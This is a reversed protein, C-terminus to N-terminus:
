RAFENIITDLIKKLPDYSSLHRSTEEFFSIQTEVDHKEITKEGIRRLFDSVMEALYRNRDTPVGFAKLLVEEASWGYTESPISEVKIENEENRSMCMVNSRNLPLNSVLFHCHTAILFHCGYDVLAKELNPILDLQWNPHQSIEPEDLLLLLRQSNAALVVSAVISLLNFEGSSLSDADVEEWNNYFICKVNKLLGYQRLVYLSELPLSRIADLSDKDFSIDLSHQEGDNITNYFEQHEVAIKPEIRFGKITNSLNERSQFRFTVKSDYGIFRLIVSLMELRNASSITPLASLQQLLVNAKSTFMNSSAKPGVYRYYEPNYRGTSYTPKSNIPFKDFMGMTSAVILPFEMRKRSVTIGDRQYYIRKDPKDIQYTHGDITYKVSYVTVHYKKSRKSHGRADIFFEILERFLSSKCVGNKGLLLTFYGGKSSEANLVEGFDFTIAEHGYFSCRIELIKFVGGDRVPVNRERMYESLDIRGIIKIESM